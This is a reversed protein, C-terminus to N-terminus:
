ISEGTTFFLAQKTITSEVLEFGEEASRRASQTLAKIEKIPVMTEVLGLNEKRGFGTVGSAHRGGRCFNRRKLFCGFCFGGKPPKQHQYTLPAFHASRDAPGRTLPV